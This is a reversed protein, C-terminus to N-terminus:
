KVSCPSHWHIRDNVELHRVVARSSHGLEVFRREAPPHLQEAFAHAVVHQRRRRRRVLTSRLRGPRDVAAEKRLLRFPGHLIRGHHDGHVVNPLGDLPQCRRAASHEALRHVNGTHPLVDREGVRLAVAHAQKLRDRAAPRRWLGASLFRARGARALWPCLSRRSPRRSSPFSQGQHGTRWEAVPGCAGGAPTLPIFMTSCLTEAPSRPTKSRSSNRVRGNYAWRAWLESWPGRSDGTQNWHSPWPTQIMPPVDNGAFRLRSGRHARPMTSQSGGVPNLWWTPVRPLASTSGNSRAIARVM